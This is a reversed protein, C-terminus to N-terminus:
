LGMGGDAFINQGTIYSAEDSCLFKVIGAIDSSQGFRGNPVKKLCADYYDKDSLADRNRDTLIIGPAVSNVTINYPALEASIAKAMATLACKASSYVLMDPHPKKEQVSGITIIRGWGKEKMSGVYKQNILLVSRLNCNIQAEFEAISINEWNNRIQMSANHILIDASPVKDFIIDACNENRLDAAVLTCKRGLKEIETKVQQAKQEDKTYVVAVDIGMKALALTIGHGIGRSGGTVIAVKNNSNIM